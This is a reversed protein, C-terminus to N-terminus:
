FDQEANKEFLKCMWRLGECFTERIENSSIKTIIVFSADIAQLNKLYSFPPPIRELRAYKTWIQFIEFIAQWFSGNFSLRRKIEVACFIFNKTVSIKLLYSWVRLKRCITMNVSSIRLPFSWEKHLTGFISKVSDVSFHKVISMQLDCFYVVNLVCFLM